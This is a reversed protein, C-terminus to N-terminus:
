RRSYSAIRNQDKYGNTGEQITLKGVFPSELYDALVSFDGNLDNDIGVAKAYNSLKETHIEVVKPNSHTLLFNEFVIRGKIGKAEKDGGVKQVVQFKAKLMTDGKKSKTEELTLMRILYDGNELPLFEPKADTGVNTAANSM